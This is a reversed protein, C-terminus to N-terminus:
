AGQSLLATRGVPAGKGVLEFSQQLEALTDPRIM